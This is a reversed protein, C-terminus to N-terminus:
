WHGLLADIQDERDERETFYIYADELRISKSKKLVFALSGKAVTVGKKILCVHDCIEQAFDLHHTSLFIASGKAKLKLLVQKMMIVMDPDLGTTPEDLIILKPTHLVAAIFQVKKRMGHSFSHLPRDRHAYLDFLTLWESSRETAINKPISRIAAIFSLFEWATLDEILEDSDPVIGTVKKIALSDHMVDIGAITIDGEDPYVHGTMMRITTTKGSGNPGLLGFIEGEQISFSLQDVVKTQQFSKSLKSVELVVRQM